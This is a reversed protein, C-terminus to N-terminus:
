DQVKKTKSWLEYNAPTLSEIKCEGKFRTIIAIVAFSKIVAIGIVCISLNKWLM